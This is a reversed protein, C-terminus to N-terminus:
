MTTYENVSVVSRHVPRANPAAAVCNGVLESEVSDDGSDACDSTQRGVLTSRQEDDDGGRYRHWGVLGRRGCESRRWTRGLCLHKAHPRKTM